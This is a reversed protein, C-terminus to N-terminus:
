MFGLISDLTDIDDSNNIPKLRFPRKLIEEYEENREDLTINANIIQSTQKNNPVDIYAVNITLRIDDMCMNIDEDGNRTLNLVIYVKTSDTITNIQIKNKNHLQCDIQDNIVHIDNVNVITGYAPIISVLLDTALIRSIGNIPEIPCYDSIAPAIIILIKDSEYSDYTDCSLSYSDLKIFSDDTSTM